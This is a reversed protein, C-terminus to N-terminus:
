RLSVAFTSASEQYFKDDTYQGVVPFDVAEASRAPREFPLVQLAGEVVCLPHGFM